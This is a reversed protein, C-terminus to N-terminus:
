PSWSWMLKALLQNSKGFGFTRIPGSDMPYTIVINRDNRNQIKINNPLQTNHNPIEPGYGPGCIAEMQIM